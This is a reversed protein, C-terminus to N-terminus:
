IELTENYEPNMERTLERVKDATLTKNRVWEKGNWVFVKGFLGVKFYRGLHHCMWNKPPDDYVKKM